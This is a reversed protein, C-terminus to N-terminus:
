GPELVLPAPGEGAGEGGKSSPVAADGTVYEGEADTLAIDVLTAM